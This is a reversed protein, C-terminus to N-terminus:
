DNENFSIEVHHKLADMITRGLVNNKKIRVIGKSSIAVAAVFEGDVQINVRRGQHGQLFFEINKHGITHRYSLADGHTPETERIDLRMGIQKELKQVNKGERGIIDGVIGSPAYVTARNNSVEVRINDHYKQLQQQIQNAALEEMPSGQAAASVPVVVTEEGYKYIEAQAAGTEHDEIVVVPRALDAETMGSPVKVQMSVSLAKAVQGGKIFVVTDIIHPIVGLEIKGIFRQIADLPNTGHVVGIMGVGALRLDAYLGFDAPNRMEDFLSYDPRSLLLIDHLEEPSGLSAAMQTITDPLVLDRPAEVTKVVKNQKAYEEVLGQAFTSKGEGPAGAILIGEAQEAIRGRLKDSLKYDEFSLHRVPRVATVEWGDCFPPKLVVIRYGALSIITSGPREIEVFAGHRTRAEEILEKAVDKVETHTLPKKKIDVMDVNGPTGKKAKPPVMERLHVSLTDKDFYEDLLLKKSRDEKTVFIVSIGKAEAVKAQVVDGTVLTADEDYALQRIVADIEGSKARDIDFSSPRRGGYKIAIGKKQAIDYIRKVEEVGVYGTSRGNNAQHELEALAAEPILIEKVKLKVAERSLYCEILASTAPVVKM